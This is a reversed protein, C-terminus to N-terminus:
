MLVISQDQKQYIMHYFADSALQKVHPPLVATTDGELVEKSARSVEKSARSVEKSARSVEKSARNNQESWRDYQESGRLLEESAKDYQPGLNTEQLGLVLLSSSGIKTAPRKLNYRERITTGVEKLKSKAIFSALDDTNLEWDM